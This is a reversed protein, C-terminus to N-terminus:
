LSLAGFVFFLTITVGVAALFLAVVMAWVIWGPPGGQTDPDSDHINLLESDM